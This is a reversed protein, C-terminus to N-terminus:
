WSRSCTKSVCLVARWHNGEQREFMVWVTAALSQLEEGTGMEQPTRCPQSHSGKEKNQIGCGERINDVTVRQEDGNKQKASSETASIQGTVATQHVRESSALACWYRWTLGHIVWLLSLSFSSLVSCQDYRCGPNRVRRRNGSEEATSYEVAPSERGAWKDINVQDSSSVKFQMTDAWYAM